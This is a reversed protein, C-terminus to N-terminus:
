EEPLEALSDLLQQVHQQELILPPLLRLVLPDASIGVLINKALLEDRIQRANRTCRLGMLFGKGQADSIPGLPLAGKILKSLARVRKMLQDKNIVDIVTKVLACAMPGGGFTSGLDGSGLSKAVDGTVILAGCPFGGAVSKALTLIDPQIEYLDTAFPRGCRGIGSQVEDIILMAGRNACTRAIEQVFEPDLDFAGAVGQVLELIVAATEDTVTDAVASISNRSLFDVSFPTQPFGYWADKAGWTVAGAAATRGHFGHEIAVVHTRGTLRLAIRLANENSEAGSNTFFIYNLQGPAFEALAEAAEARVKVAVANSQFFLERAQNTLAQLMSPHGYGLAAVAHGGYLDLIRRGDCHLHVGRASEPELPLQEYVQLLHQAEHERATLIAM